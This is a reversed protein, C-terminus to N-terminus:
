NCMSSAHMIGVLNFGAKYNKNAFFRFLSNNCGILHEIRNQIIYTVISILKKEGHLCIVNQVVIFCVEFNTCEGKNQAATM